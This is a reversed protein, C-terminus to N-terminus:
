FLTEQFRLNPQYIGGRLIYQFGIIFHCFILYFDILALKGNEIKLEPKDPNPPTTM